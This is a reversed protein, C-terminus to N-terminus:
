YTLSCMLKNSRKVPTTPRKLRDCCTGNLILALNVIGIKSSLDGGGMKNKFFFAASVNCEEIEGGRGRGYRALMMGPLRLRGWGGELSCPTRPAAVISCCRSTRGM